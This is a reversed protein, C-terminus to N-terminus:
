FEYSFNELRNIADADASELVRVCKYMQWANVFHVVYREGDNYRRLLDEYMQAGHASLLYRMNAEQTGHTHVKVFIWRPWGRVSVGTRIWLDVRDSTGPNKATINGNEVLPLVGAKRREWNLTLPGNIMLLDGSPRKGYRADTGRHHSKPRLPDDEAYYIRNIVPPQTPHPASPYTFDAYCGTERLITIEDRVGCWRGGVGSDDLAWNGHIFAYTIEGTEPDRRLMGHDNHLKDKFWEIKERLGASTDNDHHLHVEVEGFGRAQLERLKDLCEPIYEEQPYFFGHQPPAGGNDRIGDVIEPYGKRWAEVREIGTKADAGLWLPEFHDVFCFFVHRTGRYHERRRKVFGAVIIPINKSRALGYLRYAALSLIAFLLVLIVYTM